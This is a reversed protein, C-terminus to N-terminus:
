VLVCWSVQLSVETKLRMQGVVADEEAQARHIMDALLNVSNVQSSPKEDTFVPNLPQGTVASQEVMETLDKMRRSYESRDEGM